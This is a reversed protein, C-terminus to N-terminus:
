SDLEVSSPEFHRKAAMFSPLNRLMHWLTRRHQWLRKRLKRRWEPSSYFRKVYQNYLLDLEAKSQFGNPVFVFNLANMKRWDDDLTGHELITPFCPAGPFPTFKSMNMDDLGLSMIFDSTTRVTEPTEGIVGMMFLGKVRLGHKQITHVTERVQDLTVGSKLQKLLAPDGSEVGISVMLCGAAKLAELLADDTHGIRVACNFQMGLPRHVLKECLAVVRKRNLTFLDDYINVHRIGFQKRLWELHAYTYDASNYRFGKKFVSRDCYDCKYVCGRSTSISTGPTMVYSFPPLHYHKPFGRILDYAPFPLTDLDEIKVRPPNTVVQDGDRWALGDITEPPEGRALAALTEEGEGLALYDIAPFQELLQGGLASVHVGGFVSKIEPRAAKMATLMDVADLFGSTTASFGVISPDRALVEGARATVDPPVGPGLCDYVAVDHGAERLYAAISILGTPVMRNAAVTVDRKGPIWNSGSPHVLVVRM